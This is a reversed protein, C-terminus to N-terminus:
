VRALAGNAAAARTRSIRAPKTRVKSGARAAGASTPRAPRSGLGAALRRARSGRPRPRRRGVGGRGSAAPERRPAGWGPVALKAWRKGLLPLPARLLRALGSRGAALPPVRAASVPRAAGGLALPLAGGRGQHGRPGASGSKRGGGEPWFRLPPPARQRRPRQPRQPRQNEASTAPSATPGPHEGIRPRGADGLRNADNERQLNVNGM